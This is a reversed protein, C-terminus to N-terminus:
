FYNFFLKHEDLIEEGEKLMDEVNCTVSFEGGIGLYLSGSVCFSNKTEFFDKNAPFKDRGFLNGSSNIQQCLQTLGLVM